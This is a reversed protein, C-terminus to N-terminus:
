RQIIRLKFLIYVWVFVYSCQKLWGWVWVPWIKEASLLFVLIFSNKFTKAIDTLTNWRHPQLRNIFL